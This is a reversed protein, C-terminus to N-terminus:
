NKRNKWYEITEPKYDDGCDRLIQDFEKQSVPEHTQEYHSMIKEKEQKTLKSM